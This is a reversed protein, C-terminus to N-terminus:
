STCACRQGVEIVGTPLVLSVCWCDSGDELSEDFSKVLLLNWCCCCRCIRWRCFRCHKDTAASAGAGSAGAGAAKGVEGGAYTASGAATAIDEMSEVEPQPLPLLHL